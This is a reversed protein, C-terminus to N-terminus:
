DGHEIVTEKTIDSELERFGQALTRLSQYGTTDALMELQKAMDSLCVPGAMAAGTMSAIATLFNPPASM